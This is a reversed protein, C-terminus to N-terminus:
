LSFEDANGSTNWLISLGRYEERNKFQEILKINPKIGAFLDFYPQSRDNARFFRFRFSRNPESRIIRRELEEYILDLSLKSNGLEFDVFVVTSKGIKNVKESVVTYATEQVANIMAVQPVMIGTANSVQNYQGWWMAITLCALASMGVSVRKIFASHIPVELSTNKNQTIKIEKLRAETSKAKSVEPSKSIKAIQYETKVFEKQVEPIDAVDADVNGKDARLSDPLDLDFGYKKDSKIPGTGKLLANNHSTNIRKFTENRLCSSAKSSDSIRLQSEANRTNAYNEQAESSVHIEENETSLKGPIKILHPKDMMSENNSKSASNPSDGNKSKQNKKLQRKM